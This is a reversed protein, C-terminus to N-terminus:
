PEGDTTAVSIRSTDYTAVHRLSIQITTSLTPVPANSILVDTVDNLGDIDARVVQGGIISAVANRGSNGGGGKATSDGWAVIADKVQDAGDDPWEDPDKELTIAIYIPVETPRTFKIAHDRGQSDTHTGTTTGHFTIGGAVLAFLADVIDQTEGGRVLAEVSHAPLGDVDVANTNNYFVTVATVPNVTNKGVELLGARIAPIPGEGPTAVEAERRVRLDEDTEVARGLTADFVNIAASWGSYPTQIETLDGSTAETPGTNVCAALVDVDGTGAGLFRWTVTGDTIADATTSPGGSAASTGATSCRYVRGANTVRAGVIYPTSLVWAATVVITANTETAFDILTSATRVRAGSSVLTTPTGTLTLVVTSRAALRRITGTIASVADLATSTAADPDSSANVEEALEWLDALRECFIAVIRALVGNTLNISSGFAARLDENVEAILIELTKPIFGEVTLGYAM